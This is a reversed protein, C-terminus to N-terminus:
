IQLEVGLSESPYYTGGIGAGPSNYYDGRSLYQVAGFLQGNKAKTAFRSQVRVDTVPRPAPERLGGATVAKTVVPRPPAATAPPSGAPASAERPAAPAAPRTAAAAAPEAAIAVAPALTALIAVTVAVTIFLIAQTSRRM